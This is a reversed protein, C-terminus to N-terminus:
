NPYRVAAIDERFSLYSDVFREIDDPTQNIFIRLAAVTATIAAAAEPKFTTKGRDLWPNDRRTTFPHRRSPYTHMGIIPSHPDGNDIRSAHGTCYSDQLTHLASGFRLAREEWSLDPNCGAQFNNYVLARTIAYAEAVSQRRCRMAHAPHDGCRIGNWLLALMRRLPVKLDSGITPVDTRVNGLTLWAPDVGDPLAQGSVELDAIAQRM